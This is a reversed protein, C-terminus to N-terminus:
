FQFSDRVTRIDAMSSAMSSPIFLETLTHCVVVITEFRYFQFKRDAPVYRGGDISM